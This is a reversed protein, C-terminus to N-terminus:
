VDGCVNPKATTPQVVCTWKVVGQVMVPEQVVTVAYEKNQIIIAGSNTVWGFDFKMPLLGASASLQLAGAQSVPRGPNAILSKAIEAKLTSAHGVVLAVYSRPTVEDVHSCATGFLGFVICWALKMDGVQM